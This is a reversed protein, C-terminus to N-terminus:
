RVLDAPVVTVPFPLRAALPEDGVVKAVQQYLGDPGLEWAVLSAVAPRAVPGVVWYSVIGARQLRERKVHTDFMRKSPSLVEVALVPTRIERETFDEQRGVVVDPQIETDEALGVAFPGTLVEFDSPAAQVLRIALRITARQHVRGPAASVHLHGDVLEYRRGNDPTHELDARTYPGPARATTAMIPM